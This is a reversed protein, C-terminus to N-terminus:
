RQGGTSSGEHAKNWAVMGGSLKTVEKFGMQLLVECATHARKGSRCVVLVPKEKPWRAVANSVTALPVLDAGDIHGLEGNFEEPQRVDIVRYYHIDAVDEPGVEHIDPGTDDTSVIEGCSLNAAVAVDMMRPNALNLCNMIEVFESQDVRLNLRPNHAKQEAVTTSSHGRYDHGPYIM